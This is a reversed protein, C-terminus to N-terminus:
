RGGEQRSKLYAELTLKPESRAPSKRPPVATPTARVDIRGITVRVIPSEQASEGPTTLHNEFHRLMTSVRAASRPSPKAASPELLREGNQSSPLARNDAQSPRVVLGLGETIPVLLKEPKRDVVPNEPLVQPKEPEWVRKAGPKEASLAQRAIAPQQERGSPLSEAESGVEFIPAPAFRPTILPEVRPATGRARDVLRALFHSM